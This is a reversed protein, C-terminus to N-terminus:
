KGKKKKVSTMKFKLYECGALEPALTNVNTLKYQKEEKFDEDFLHYAVEWMATLIAAYGGAQGDTKIEIKIIKKGTM